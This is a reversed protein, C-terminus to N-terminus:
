VPRRKSRTRARRQEKIRRKVAKDDKETRRQTRSTAYQHKKLDSFFGDLALKKKLVRFAKDINNNFVKVEM